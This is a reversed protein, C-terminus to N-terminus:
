SKSCSRAELDEWRKYLKDVQAQAEHMLSTLEQAKVHNSVHQPMAMEQMIQQVKQEALSITDHITALEKKENNSLPKTKPLAKDDPQAKDKNQSPKQPSESQVKAREWQQLDAFYEAKGHGDLALIETSLSDIMYRDHSVIVVAGPFEALSDQLVELSGIDLDNTPEDLILVDAPQLMLNAIFVRAQEGGSLRSVPLPLQDPRFLFRKSWSAIHMQRDQFVVSDGHPCLAQKLTLTQDLKERAQDFWVIKLQDARKITGADPELSGTLLKLLTTKGSGNTGVLGLKIGPTLTIDLGQFLLKGGMSKKIQKAVILEKTKRNSANFDIGASQGLANRAKVQAYEDMLKGAEKIRGSSKTQRARAGRALWAVERRVKSALAQQENSQATLYEQRGELFESYPGKVSLFGDKYVPNLEITRNTVNELFQRDHTVLIFSFSAQNLLEELYLVGELDLHNTPEDLLLFDPEKILEAALALRKKWGGSLDRVRAELNTFGVRSLALDAKYNKEDPSLPDDALSAIVIDHCSDDPSYDQEQALYATKLHKRKTISGGDPEVLGAIIKMLTSKGTGNPGILGVKEREDITLCLDKFLPRSSYSKSLSQCTIAVPM